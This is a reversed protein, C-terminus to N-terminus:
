ELISEINQKDATNNLAKIGSSTWLIIYAVQHIIYGLQHSNIIIFIKNYNLEVQLITIFM